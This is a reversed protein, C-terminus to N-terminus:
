QESSEGEKVTPTRYLEHKPKFASPLGMEVATRDADSRSILVDNIRM